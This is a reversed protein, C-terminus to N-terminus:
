RDKGAAAEHASLMARYITRWYDQHEPADEQWRRHERMAALRMEVSAEMPVLVMSPYLAHSAGGPMQQDANPCRLRLVEIAKTLKNREHPALNSSVTLTYELGGILNAVPAAPAPQQALAYGSPIVNARTGSHRETSRGGQMVLGGHTAEGDRSLKGTAPLEQGAANKEHVGLRKAAYWAKIAQPVQNNWEGAISSVREYHALCDRLREEIPVQRAQKAAENMRANKEAESPNDDNM